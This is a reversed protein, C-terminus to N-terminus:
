RLYAALNALHRGTTNNRTSGWVPNHCNFKGALIYPAQCNEYIASFHKEDFAAKTLCIGSDPLFCKAGKLPEVLISMTQTKMYQTTPM